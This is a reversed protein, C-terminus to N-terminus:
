GKLETMSFLGGANKVKELTKVGEEWCRQLCLMMGGASWATEHPKQPSMSVQLERQDSWLHNIEKLNIQKEVLWKLLLGVTIQLSMMDPAKIRQEPFKWLRSCIM